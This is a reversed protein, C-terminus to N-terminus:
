MVINLNKRRRRVIIIFYIMINISFIFIPYLSNVLAFNNLSWLVFILWIFEILYVNPNESYPDVFTKRITPSTAVLDLWVLLLLSYLPNWSFYWIPITILWIWLCIKDFTTIDNTWYKFSLLYTVWSFFAIVWLYISWYSAENSIQITFILLTIILYLFATYIHPKTEGRFVSYYYVLYTITTIAGWILGFIFKLEM